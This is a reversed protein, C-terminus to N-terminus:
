SRLFALEPKQPPIGDADLFALLDLLGRKNGELHFGHGMCNISFTFVTGRYQVAESEEVMERLSLGRCVGISSIPQQRCCKGGHDPRLGGRGDPQYAHTITSRAHRVFRHPVGILHKSPWQFLGM